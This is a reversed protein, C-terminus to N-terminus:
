MELVLGGRLRTTKKHPITIRWIVEQEVEAYTPKYSDQIKVIDINLGETEELGGLILAQTIYVPTRTDYYLLPVKSKFQLNEGKINQDFKDAVKRFEEFIIHRPVRIPKTNLYPSFASPVNYDNYYKLSAEGRYMKVGVDVCPMHHNYMVKFITAKEISFKVNFFSNADMGVDATAKDVIPADTGEINALIARAKRLVQLAEIHQM